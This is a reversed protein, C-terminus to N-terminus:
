LRRYHGRRTQAFLAKPGKSRKVLIDSVSYRSVPGGLLKEVEALIAKAKM